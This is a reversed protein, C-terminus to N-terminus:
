TSKYCALEQETGKALQFLFSKYAKKNPCQILIVENPIALETKLLSLDLTELLSVVHQLILGLIRSYHHGGEHNLKQVFAQKSGFLSTKKDYKFKQNNFENKVAAVINILKIEDSLDAARIQKIQEILSDIQNAYKQKSLSGELEKYAESLKFVEQIVIEMLQRIKYGQEYQKANVVLRNLVAEQNGLQSFHSILQERYRQKISEKRELEKKGEGCLIDGKCIGERCLVQITTLHVTDTKNAELIHNIEHKKDEFLVFSKSSTDQKILKFMAGKNTKHESLFQKAEQAKGLSLLEEYHKHLESEKTKVVLDLLDVEHQIQKVISQEATDLTKGSLLSQCKAFCPKWYNQYYAGPENLHVDAPTIVKEVEFGLRTMHQILYERTYVAHTNELDNCIQWGYMSTFLYVKKIGAELLVELLAENIEKGQSDIITDDVDLLAIVPANNLHLDLELRM